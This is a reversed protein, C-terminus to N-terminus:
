PLLVIFNFKIMAIIVIFHTTTLNRTNVKNNRIPNVYM